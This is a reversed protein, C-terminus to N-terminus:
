EIAWLGLRGLSAGLALRAYRWDSLARIRQQQANAYASQAGILELINGVGGEYRHQTSQFSKQASELLAASNTLNDTDARLETYSKWVDQAVQQEVGHLAEQKVEVQAHAQAVRGRKWIADSIPVDIQIGVSKNSVSGPVSPSGLSPTLSENSRSIGAVLAITPLGHARSAKEDARAAALNHEAVTVSPHTRKAEGILGHLSEEFSGRTNIDPDAQPVTIMHDPDMAMDGALAGRKIKLEAAAKVRNVVALAYATQAQLEDSIPAVGKQVRIHAADVSRKTLEEIELNSDLSAQAAQADYYDQAAQLFVQQLNLDLNARAAALLERASELQNGRQGFDYLVWSLSLSAAPYLDNTSTDLARNYNVRTQTSSETEAAKASLTPLYTDRGVKVAAAYLKITAWAGRTKPNGCLTRSVADALTLPLRLAGFSCPDPNNSDAFLPAAPSAPIGSANESRDGARASWAMILLSPLIAFLARVM